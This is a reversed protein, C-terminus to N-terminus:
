TIYKPRSAFYLWGIAKVEKVQITKYIFLNDIFIINENYEISKLRNREKQKIFYM